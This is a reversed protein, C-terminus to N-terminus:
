PAIRQLGNEGEETHTGSNFLVSSRHDTGVALVKVWQAM